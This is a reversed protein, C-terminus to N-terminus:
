LLCRLVLALLNARGLLHGCLVYLCVRVTIGNMGWFVDIKQWTIDQEKIVNLYIGNLGLIVDVVIWTIDQMKYCEFLYREYGLRM